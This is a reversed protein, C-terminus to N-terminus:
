DFEESEDSTHAMGAQVVGDVGALIQLPQKSHRDKVTVTVDKWAFSQISYNTIHASGNGADKELDSM